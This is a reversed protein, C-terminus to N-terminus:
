VYCALQDVIGRALCDHDGGRVLTVEDCDPMEVCDTAIVQCGMSLALSASGSAAHMEKFPFVVLDSARLCTVLEDFPLFTTKLVLYSELRRERIIRDYKEWPEWNQGAIILRIDPVEERVKAFALLLDDLGKYERINGFFCLVKQESTFGMLSRATERDVFDGGRNGNGNLDPHQIVEIRSPDWGLEVLEERNRETHVLLTQGLHLVLSNLLEKLRGQEHPRVNHVTVMVQKGRLRALTLMVLYIPALPYSWWQAYVTDGRMTMGAHLWSLPNYWTLENRIYLHPHNLDVPYLDECRTGGPYLREPYLDRFGMFEVESDEALELAFEACYPSIGKLPPLTGIVTVVDKQAAFAMIGESEYLGAPRSPQTGECPNYWIM